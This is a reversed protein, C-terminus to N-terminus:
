ATADDYSKPFGFEDKEGNKSARQDEADLRDAEARGAQVARRQVCKDIYAISESAGKAIEQYTSSAEFAKHKVQEALDRLEGAKDAVQEVSLAKVTETLNFQPHTYIEAANKLVVDTQQIFRVARGDFTPPVNTPRGGGRSAKQGQRRRMQKIRQELEEPSWDSKLTQEMMDVFKTNPGDTSHLRLLREMHSWSLARGSRAMRRSTIEKIDEETPFARYLQAMKRLYVDSCGILKSLIAIPNVPENGKVPDLLEEDNQLMYVTRGQEWMWTLSTSARTVDADFVKRIMVRCKTNCNRTEEVFFQGAKQTVTTSNRSRQRFAQRSGAAM